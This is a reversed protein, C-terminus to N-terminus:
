YDWCQNLLSSKTTKSSSAVVSPCQPSLGIMGYDSLCRTLLLGFSKCKRCLALSWFIDLGSPKYRPKPKSTSCVKIDKGKSQCLQPETPRTPRMQRNFPKLDPSWSGVHKLHGQALCQVGLQKWDPQRRRTHCCGGMPPHTHSHFPSHCAIIFRKPTGHPQQFVSYLHLGHGM